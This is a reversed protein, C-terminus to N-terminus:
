ASRWSAERAGAIVEYVSLVILAIAGILVPLGPLAVTERERIM